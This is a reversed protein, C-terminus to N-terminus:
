KQQLPVCLFVPSRKETDSIVTSSRLGLSSKHQCEKITTVLEKATPRLKPNTHWCQKIVKVFDKPCQKPIKPRTGKSIKSMIKDLNWEEEQFPVQGSVMEFFVMGLSYIDSKETWSKKYDLVEPPSWRLSGFTEIQLTALSFTKALGFGSLMVKSKNQILLSRSTIDRHLVPTPLAHLYELAQAAQLAISLQQSYTLSASSIFDHLNGDALEMVLWVEKESVLCAGYITCINAFSLDAMIQLEYFIDALVGKGRTRIMKIAVDLKGESRSWVGKFVAGLGDSKLYNLIELDKKAIRLKEPISEMSVKYQPLLGTPM